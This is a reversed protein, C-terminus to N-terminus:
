YERLVQMDVRERCSARGIKVGSNAHPQQYWNQSRLAINSGCRPGKRACRSGGVMAATERERRPVLPPLTPSLPEEDLAFSSQSLDSSCVDSSWDRKSRTHRR